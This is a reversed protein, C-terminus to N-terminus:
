EEHKYYANNFINYNLNDVAYSAVVKAADAKMEKKAGENEQQQLQEHTQTFVQNAVPLYKLILPQSSPYKNKVVYDRSQLQIAQDCFQNFIEEREALPLKAVAKMAPRAIAVVGLFAKSMAEYEDRLPQNQEQRLQQRLQDREVGLADREAHYLESVRLSKDLAARLEKIHANGKRIESELREIEQDREAIVQNGHITAENWGQTYGHERGVAIGDAMGNAHGNNYGVSEALYENGFRGM